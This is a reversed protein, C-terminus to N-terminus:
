VCACVTITVPHTDDLDITEEHDGAVHGAFQAISEM